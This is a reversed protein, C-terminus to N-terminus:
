LTTNQNKRSPFKLVVTTGEGVTSNVAIDGHLMRVIKKSMTLGVGHSDHSDLAAPTRYFINFIRDCHEQTMGIGNDSIEYIAYNMDVNGNVVIKNKRDPHKFKISNEIINSVVDQILKNDGYCDPIDEAIIETADDETQTKIKAIAEALVSNMDVFDSQVQINSLRGLNLLGKIIKEIEMSEKYVYRFHSRIDDNLVRKMEEKDVQDESEAMLRLDNLIADIEHIFGQITVLPTRCDHSTAQIMQELDSNKNEVENILNSNIMQQEKFYIVLIGMASTLALLTGLLYGWPAFWKVPRLFPYDFKHLGWLIFTYGVVYSEPRYNKM